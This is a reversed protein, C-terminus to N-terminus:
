HHPDRVLRTLAVPLHGVDARDPPAVPDVVRRQEARALRTWHRAIELHCVVRRQHQEVLVALDHPAAFAVVRPLQLLQLELNALAHVPASPSGAADAALPACWEAASAAPEGEAGTWCGGCWRMLRGSRKLM